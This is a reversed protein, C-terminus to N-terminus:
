WWRPKPLEVDCGSLQAELQTLPQDPTANRAAVRTHLWGGHTSPPLALEPWIRARGGWHSYATGFPGRRSDNFLREHDVYDWADFPAVHSAAEPCAAQWNSRKFLLCDDPAYYKNLYGSKDGKGLRGVAFWGQSLNTLEPHPPAHAAWHLHLAWAYTPDAYLNEAMWEAACPMARARHQPLCLCRRALWAAGGDYHALM